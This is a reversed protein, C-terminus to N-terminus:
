LVSASDPPVDAHPRLRTVLVSSDSIGRLAHIEQPCLHLLDGAHLHIAHCDHEFAVHGELCQVTIEGPARHPPIQKGAPIVLRILELGASKMLAQSKAAAVADGLPLHLIRAPAPCTDIMPAEESMFTNDGKSTLGPFPTDCPIPSPPGGENVEADIMAATEGNLASQADATKQDCRLMVLEGLGSALTALAVFGVFAAWAILRQVAMLNQRETELDEASAVPKWLAECTIFGIAALGLLVVAVALTRM